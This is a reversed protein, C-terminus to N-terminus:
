DFKILYYLDVGSEVGLTSEIEWSESLRKRLTVGGTGEFLGQIDIESIGLESFTGGYGPLLAGAGIMLADEGEQGTRMPRGMFIYGLIDREPMSPNSYLSVVPAEATGTIQVGAQVTGVDRLALISLSPNEVPGGSYKLVGQKIDLNAGYAKYVGDVLSIQGWIAPHDMEDLSVIGGGKLRTEIGSTKILVKDGLEVAVRLDADIPLARHQDRTDGSIVVDASTKVEPATSSDLLTMEPILVHGEVQIKDLDGSLTLEPSCLMQLEPFNYLKFREGKVALQYHDLRWNDFDMSGSGSLIGQGSRLSFDNIKIQKGQLSMRLEFDEITIGNAPLYAGAEQLSLLGKFVPDQWTGNVQLDTKIQGHLEQVTGPPLAILKGTSRLDSQLSVHLVGDAVFDMPWRAPLPLLWSGTLTGDNTLQMSLSGTLQEGHWHWDIKALPALIDLQGGKNILTLRSDSFDVQGDLSIGSDTQWTGDSEGRVLGEASVGEPFLPKLSALDLRDVAFKVHGADPWAFRPKDTSNLTLDLLGGNAGVVHASGLFQKNDWKLEALVSRFGVPRTKQRMLGVATVRASVKLLQGHDIDLQAHGDSSGQAELNERLGDLRELKVGQWLLDFSLQEPPWQWAPAQYSHAVAELHEGSDSDASIELDLGADTWDVQATLVPATVTLFDNQLEADATVVAKLSVPGQASLEMFLEGTSKGSVKQEPRLYALWGHGLDRWNVTLRTNDDGGWDALTFSVHEGLRSVLAFDDLNSVGARWTLHAPKELDWVGIEPFRASLAQLEAQWLGDRYHGTLQLTLDGASGALSAQVVHKELAGNLDLRLHDAQRGAYRFGSGDLQISLPGLEALHRGSFELSVITADRWVLNNGAGHVDGTLYGGAWRLWGSAALRGALDPHYRSLEAVELDLDIRESPQGSAILRAGDGTLALNVDHLGGDRWDAALNGAIAHGRLQGEHVVAGLSAQLPQGDYSILLEGSLDLRTQGNLDKILNGPDLGSGSLEGHMRYSGIWALELDGSLSGNLYRGRLDDFRLEQWSGQMAATLWVNNDTDTVRGIRLPGTFGNWDGDLSLQAPFDIPVALDRFLKPDVLTDPLHVDATMELHPRQLDWDFAGRLHVCPSLYSFQSAKIRWQSWLYNGSIEDAIVVAAEGDGLSLKDIQLRDIQVTLWPPLLALMGASFPVANEASVSAVPAEQVTEKMITLQDIELVRITLKRRLLGFPEWGLEVRRATVRGEPWVVLLDDIILDDALRGELHGTKVQVDLTGAIAEILWAAGSASRLLWSGVGLLIVGLFVLLLCTSLIWRRM